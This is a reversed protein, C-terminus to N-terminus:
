APHRRRRRDRHRTRLAPPHGDPLESAERTGTVVAIASTSSEVHALEAAAVVLPTTDTGRDVETFVALIDDRGQPRLRGVIWESTTRAAVPLRLAMTSLVLSTTIEVAVEFQDDDYATQTEDVVVALNPRRNDVYHRVM